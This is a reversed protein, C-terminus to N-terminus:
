TNQTLESINNQKVHITQKVDLSPMCVLVLMEWTRKLATM